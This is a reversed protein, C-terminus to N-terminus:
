MRKEKLQERIADAKDYYRERYFPFRERLKSDIFEVHNTSLNNGGAVAYNDTDIQWKNSRNNIIVIYTRLM